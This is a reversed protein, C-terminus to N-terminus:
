FNEPILPLNVLDFGITAANVTIIGLIVTAVVLVGLALSLFNIKDHVGCVEEYCITRAMM